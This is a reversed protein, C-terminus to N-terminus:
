FFNYRFILVPFSFLLMVLLGIIYHRIKPDKFRITQDDQNYFKTINGNALLICIVESMFFRNIIQMYVASLFIFAVLSIPFFNRYLILDHILRWPTAYGVYTYRSEKFFLLEVITIFLLFLGWVVFYIIGGQRDRILSFPLKFNNSIPNELDHFKNIESITESDKPYPIRDFWKRTKFGDSLLKSIGPCKISVM